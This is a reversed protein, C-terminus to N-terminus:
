SSFFHRRDLPDDAHYSSEGLLIPAKTGKPGKIRKQEKEDVKRIVQQPMEPIVKGQYSDTM